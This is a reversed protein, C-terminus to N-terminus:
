IFEMEKYLQKNKIVHMNMYLQKNKTINNM